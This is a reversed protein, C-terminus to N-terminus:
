RPKPNNKTHYDAFCNKCIFKNCQECLNSVKTRRQKGNVKQYGCNTCVVRHPHKSVPFHRGKLRNIQINSHRVRPVNNYIHLQVLQDILELRFCKHSCKKQKFTPDYTTYTIMANLICVDLVRFFIKKWWKLTKRDISYSALHQDCKDVGNMYKNYENIMEPKMVHENDGRRLVPISSTGHISSMAFVDSKDFWHVAKINEKSKLKIYLM